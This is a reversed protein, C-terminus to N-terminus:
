GVYGLGRLRESIAAEDEASLTFAAAGTTSVPAPTDVVQPTQAALPGRLAQILVRGDMAAPIPQGLLHLITPALDALTAGSIEVGPQVPEGLAAFIGNMRHTGSIGRRMAEIVRHSGFEYEGFGFYELRKPLFVIDPADELYPGRYLEERPYIEDVVAEGTAPDTLLRLRAMIEERVQEYERGPAVCGQPERGTVNLRIQGINGLSYARTAPWDVDDFSLFLTRLLGQGQGRVVERKLSGLGLRMLLDYVAMPSFGARFAAYKLRARWAPKIALFGQERLWNNVHIFKHFPGFGHDSMLMLVTDPPLSAIQTALWRDLFQYFALIADGYKAAKAPDHLPHAPSMFKWMAHQVTDTGNFVVMFFDWAERGRLNEVLKIRTETTQYLRALFADVGADSYAQGPDPYLIYNGTIREIEQALEPPHTFTVQKSPTPLGSILLGNVPEPPFTMPVNVVAVRRGAASLLSWLSPLRRNAATAPVFNYTGPERYVWDYISHRAPNAGTAFTTWAPGTMPPVTSRLQGWAGRALVQAMAPLKGQAVWPLILDFTAGDLGIVFCRYTM